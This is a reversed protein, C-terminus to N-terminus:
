SAARRAANWGATFHICASRDLDYRTGYVAVWAQEVTQPPRPAPPREDKRYSVEM